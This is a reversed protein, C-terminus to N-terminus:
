PTLPGENVPNVRFSGGKVRISWIQGPKFRNSETQGQKVRNSRTQGPKVGISCLQVCSVVTVGISGQEGSVNIPPRAFASPSHHGGDTHAFNNLETKEEGKNEGIEQITTIM